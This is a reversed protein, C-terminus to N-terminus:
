KQTEEALELLLNTWASQVQRQQRLGDLDQESAQVFAPDASCYECREYCDALAYGASTLVLGTVALWVRCRTLGMGSGERQM